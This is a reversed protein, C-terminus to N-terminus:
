RPRGATDNYIKLGPEIRKDDNRSQGGRQGADHDEQKESMGRETHRRQHTCDHTHADGGGIANQDHREGFLLKRLMAVRQLRGDLGTERAKAGHEHGGQGHDDAHNGHGKSQAFPALLIRRESPRDDATQQAGRHCRENEDRCYKANEVPPADRSLGAM